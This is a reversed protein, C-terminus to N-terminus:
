RELLIKDGEGFHYMWSWTPRAIPEKLIAVGGEEAVAIARVGDPVEIYHEGELTVDEAHFEGNGHIVIRVAEKREIKGQWFINKGKFDIGENKVVVNKLTCKGCYPSFRLLGESTIEGMPKKAEILLSGEVDINELDAEAIELQLEAGRALRGGRIKQAIVEWSPGLAPNFNFVFSPGERLYGAASPAAPVDMKCLGTLLEFHNQLKEHFCGPPTGNITTGGDYSCKTVSITKRRLNYTLFTKLSLNENSSVKDQLTDVIVDAINQMTSELRGGLVERYLGSEQLSRFKSKM